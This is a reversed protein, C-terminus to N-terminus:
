NRVTSVVAAVAVVVVVAVVAARTLGFASLLRPMPQMWNTWRSSVRLWGCGKRKTLVWLLGDVQPMGLGSRPATLVSIKEVSCTLLSQVEYALHTLRFQSPVGKSKEKPVSYTCGVVWQEQIIMPRIREKNDPDVDDM